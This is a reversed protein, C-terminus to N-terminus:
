VVLHCFLRSRSEYHECCFIKIVSVLKAPKRDYKIFYVNFVTTHNEICFFLSEGKKNSNYSTSSSSFFIMPFEAINLDVLKKLPRVHCNSRLCQHSVHIYKPSVGNIKRDEPAFCWYKEGQKSVRILQLLFSKWKDNMLTMAGKM